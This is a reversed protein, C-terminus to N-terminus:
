SRGGLSGESEVLGILGTAIFLMFRKMEKEERDAQLPL